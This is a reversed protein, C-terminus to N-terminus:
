TPSFREATAVSVVRRVSTEGSARGDDHCGHQLRKLYEAQTDVRPWVPNFCARRLEQVLLEADNNRHEVILVKLPQPM